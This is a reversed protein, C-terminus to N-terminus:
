RSLYDNPKGEASDEHERVHHEPSASRIDPRIGQLVLYQERPGHSADYERDVNADPIVRFSSSQNHSYRHGDEPDTDQSPKQPFTQGGQSGV